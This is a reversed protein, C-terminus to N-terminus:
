LPWELRNACVQFSLLFDFPSTFVVLEEELLGSLLWYQNGCRVNNKETGSLDMIRLNRECMASHFGATVRVAVAFLSKIMEEMLANMECISYKM